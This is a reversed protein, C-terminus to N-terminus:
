EVYKYNKINKLIKDEIFYDKSLDSEIFSKSEKLNIFEKSVIFIYEKGFTKSLDQSVKYFPVNLYISGILRKHYYLPFYFVLSDLFRKDMISLSDNAKFFEIVDSLKDGYKNFNHFRLYVTGDPLVFMFREFGYKRLIKYDKYFRNYLIYRKSFDSQRLIKLIISDNEVKMSFFINAINDFKDTEIELESTLQNIKSQMYISEKNKKDLYLFLTTLCLIFVNGIFLVIYDKKLKRVM